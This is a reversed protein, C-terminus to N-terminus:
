ERLLDHVEDTFYFFAQFSFAPYQDTWGSGLREYPDHQFAFILILDIGSGMFDCVEDLALNCLLIYSFLASYLQATRM